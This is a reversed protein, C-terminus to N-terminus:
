HAAASSRPKQYVAPLVYKLSHRLGNLSEAHGILLYGGPHLRKSLRNVLEEQTDRDFYIMVNRCFIAAFMGLDSFDQMLNLRRFQVVSKTSKKVLYHHSATGIGKLLHRRMQDVPVHRLKDSAYEGAQAVALVRTSIDTALISVHQPTEKMLADLLAFAISYPEEGTSCAASWVRLEPRGKWEPVLTTRLFDFHQPERFFTTHNTTLADVMQTLADGTADTSILELLQAFSGLNLMRLQKSLRAEVLAEKGRLEIGVLRYINDRICRFEKPTLRPACARETLSPLIM